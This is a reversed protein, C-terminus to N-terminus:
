TGITFIEPNPIHWLGDLGCTAAAVAAAEPTRVGCGQMGAMGAGHVGPELLTWIAKMGASFSELLHMHMHPPLTDMLLGPAVFVSIGHNCM